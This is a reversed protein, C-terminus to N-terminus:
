EPLFARIQIKTILVYALPSPHFSKSNEISFNWIMINEASFIQM